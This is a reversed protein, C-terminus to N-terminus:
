YKIYTKYDAFFFETYMRMHDGCSGTFPLLSQPLSHPAWCLLAVTLPFTQIETAQFVIFEKTFTLYYVM